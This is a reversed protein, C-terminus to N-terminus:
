DHGLVRERVVRLFAHGREELFACGDPAARLWAGRGGRWFRPEKRANSFALSADLDDSEHPAGLELGGLCEREVPSSM